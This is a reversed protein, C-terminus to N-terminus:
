SGAGQEALLGALAASLIAHVDERCGDATVIRPRQVTHNNYLSVMFDEVGLKSYEAIPVEVAETVLQIRGAVLDFVLGLPPCATALRERFALIDGAPEARAAFLHDAFADALHVALMAKKRSLM